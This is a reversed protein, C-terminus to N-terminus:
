KFKRCYDTYTRLEYDTIRQANKWDNEAGANDGLLFKMAGREYFARSIYIYKFLTDLTITKDFDALSERFQKLVERCQGRRFYFEIDNPFNALGITYIREANKQDNDLLIYILALKEFIDYNKYGKIISKEFYTIAKKLGEQDHYDEDDALKFHNLGSEYLQQGTQGYICGVFYVTLAALFLIRRM